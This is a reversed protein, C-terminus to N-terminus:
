KKHRLFFPIILADTKAALEPPIAHTIGPLTCLTVEVGDKALYTEIKMQPLATVKAPADCQNFAKWVEIRQSVPLNVFESSGGGNFSKDDDGMVWFISTRKNGDKPVMEDVMGCKTPAIAAFIDTKKVLLNCMHGGASGGMAYIRKPDSVKKVDLLQLIQMVFGYDDAQKRNWDKGPIFNWFCITTVGDKNLMDEGQPCVSVIRNKKVYPSLRRNFVNTSGGDGHFGFVVPLREGSHYNSPLEILATREHLNTQVLQLSNLGPKLSVSNPDTPRSEAKVEMRFPFLITLCLLFGVSFSRRM